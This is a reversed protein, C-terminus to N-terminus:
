VERAFDNIARRGAATVFCVGTVAAATTCVKRPGGFTHLTLAIAELLVGSSDLFSYDSWPLNHMNSFPGKKIKWGQYM